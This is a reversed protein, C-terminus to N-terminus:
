PAWLSVATNVLVWWQIRYEFDTSNLGCGRERMGNIILIRYSYRVEM